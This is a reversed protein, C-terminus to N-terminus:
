HFHTSRLFLLFGEGVDTWHELKTKIRELIRYCKTIPGTGVVRRYLCEYPYQIQSNTNDHTTLQGWLGASTIGLCNNVILGVVCFIFNKMLSKKLLHSRIWLVYGLIEIRGLLTIRHQKHLFIALLKLLSDM